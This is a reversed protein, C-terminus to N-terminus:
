SASTPASGPASGGRYFDSAKADVDLAEALVLEKLRLLLEQPLAEAVFAAIAEIAPEDLGAPAGAQGHARAFEAQLEPVGYFVALARAQGKRKAEQLHLGADNLLAVPQGDEGFRVPSVCMKELAELPVKEADSLPRWRVALEADGVAFVATREARFEARLGALSLRRPPPPAPPPSPPASVDPPTTPQDPM